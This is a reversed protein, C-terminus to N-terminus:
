MVKNVQDSLHTPFLDVGIGSKFLYLVLFVGVSVFVNLGLLLLVAMLWNGVRSVSNPIYRRKQSRRDKGVFVVVYFRSILLDVVFRLDIIKPSPKPVNAALLNYVAEQQESTFSEWIDPSLQSLREMLSDSSPFGPDGNAPTVKPSQRHIM